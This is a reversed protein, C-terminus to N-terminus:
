GNQVTKLRGDQVVVSATGLPLTAPKGDVTADLNSSRGLRIWLRSQRYHVRHGQTLTGAYLSRGSASGVHVEVWSDGRAASLVVLSSTPQSPPAAQFEASAVSTTAAPQTSRTAPATTGPASDHYTKWASFTLIALGATAVLGVVFLLQELRTGPVARSSYGAARRM